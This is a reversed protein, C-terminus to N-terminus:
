NRQVTMQLITLLLSYRRRMFQNKALIVACSFTIIREIAIMLLLQYIYGYLYVTGCASAIYLLRRTPTVRKIHFCYFFMLAPALHGTDHFLLGSMVSLVLLLNDSHMYTRLNFMNRFMLGISMNLLIYSNTAMHSRIIDLPDETISGVGCITCKSGSSQWCQLHVKLMSGKCLCPQILQAM